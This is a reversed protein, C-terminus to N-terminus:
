LKKGTLQYQDLLKIKLLDVLIGINEYTESVDPVSALILVRHRGTRKHAKKKIEGKKAVEETEDNNLSFLSLTVKLFGASM